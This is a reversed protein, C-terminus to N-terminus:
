ARAGQGAVGSELTAVGGARGAAAGEVLQLWRAGVIPLMMEEGEMDRETQDEEGKERLKRPNKREPLRTFKLTYTYMHHM